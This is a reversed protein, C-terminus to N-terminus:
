QAPLARAEIAGRRLSWAARLQLPGFHTQAGDPWHVIVDDIAEQGGLGFHAMASNSALYSGGRSITRWQVGEGSLLQVRAGIAESGDENLVQLRLWGNESGSVNRLLRAPGGNNVVVIDIAGDLDYDAFAVARSNDIVESSTGGGTAVLEFRAGGLGRFLHNPEAFPIPTPLGRGVRGNGVYADLVGDNDFDVFGTGFGTFAVSAAALGTTATIDEFNGGDNLYLTNTEGRLHTVFLDADGDNELDAMAIGMGAEAAGTLNVATGSILGLDSFTGDGGNIWLHNPMGDNAVYLDPWGDNDFDDSVVGLGYGVAKSIGSGDTVDTFRGGDNRYLVDTAPAKFHRPHCYDRGAGGSFCELEQAPSWNVYNSVYLDPDGDLDFDLWTASAGWGPHDVGLESSVDSFSGDGENRYLVNAGVNTVYLDIDGDGDYDAAAAGMGYGEHGTGSTATVDVFDGRDNRYFQNGPAPGDEEALRGGQVFYLDPDGDADYDLWAAGGSMIEPLWLRTVNARVHQFDVGAEVAADEFWIPGAPAPTGTEPADCGPVALTIAAILATTTITNRNM